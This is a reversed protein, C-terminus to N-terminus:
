IEELAGVTFVLAPTCTLIESACYCHLVGCVKQLNIVALHFNYKHQESHLLM